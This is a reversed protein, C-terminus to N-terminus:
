SDFNFLRDFELDRKAKEIQELSDQDVYKTQIREKIEPPPKPRAKRGAKLENIMDEAAKRSKWYHIVDEKTVYAYDPVDKVLLCLLNEIVHLQKSMANLRVDSKNEGTTLLRHYDLIVFRLVKSVTKLEGLNNLVIIEDLAEEHTPSLFLTHRSM